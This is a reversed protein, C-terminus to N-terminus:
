SAATTPGLTLGGGEVRTALYWGVVRRFMTQKDEAHDALGAAEWLGDVPVIDGDLAELLEWDELRKDEALFSHRARILVNKVFVGLASGDGPRESSVGRSWLWELTEAPPAQFPLTDTRDPRIILGVHFVYRHISEPDTPRARVRHEDWLDDIVDLPMAVLADSIAIEGNRGRPLQAFRGLGLAARAAASTFEMLRDLADGKPATVATADSWAIQILQRDDLM